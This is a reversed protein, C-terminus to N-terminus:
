NTVTWTCPASVKIWYANGPTMFDAGGLAMLYYPPKTAEYAEVAQYPVGFLSTSVERSIFSQYSVLNWGPALDMSSSAPVVGAITLNSDSGVELWLGHSPNLFWTMQYAKKLNYEKWDTTSTDYIMVRQVNVTQFVSELRFDTLILPISVLNMGAKLAKTFKAVQGYSKGPYGSSDNAQVYYFYNNSDGHGAGSHIYLSTGAPVEALFDYGAKQPDYIQSHYIAYNGFGPSSENWSLDWSINVNSLSPGELVASLNYPPLPGFPMEPPPSPCSSMSIPNKFPYNDFVDLTMSPVEYPEDGIGDAGPFDQNVGRYSDNEAYDHWYNGGSPYGDDWINRSEDMVIIQNAAYFNNHHIRNGSSGFPVYVHEYNDVFDNCLVRNNIAGRFRGLRVGYGLSTFRSNRVENGYHDESVYVGVYLDSFTVDEVTNNNGWISVAYGELGGFGVLQQMSGRIVTNSDSQILLGYISHRIEFDYADVHGSPHITIGWWQDDYPDPQPDTTNWTIYASLYLYGYVDVAGSRDAYGMGSMELTVGAQVTTPCTIYFQFDTRSDETITGCLIDVFVWQENDRIHGPQVDGTISLSALLLLVVLLSLVAVRM